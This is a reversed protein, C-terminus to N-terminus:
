FEYGATLKTKTDTNEKDEPVDSLHEVEYSLKLYLNDMLDTKLASVANTIVAESGASSELTQTFNITDNIDWDLEGGLRALASNEDEGNEIDSQRAGLAAEGSLELDDEKIFYRGYGVLESMRYNYGSFRDNVYDLEGFVYDIDTLSYRLQDNARYEEEIRTDDEKSNEASAEFINTWNGFNNELKTSLDVSEEETNGTQYVIGAEVEGKFSKKPEGASPALNALQAAQQAAAREAAQIAESVVLTQQKQTFSDIEAEQEPYYVKAVTVVSDFVFKDDASIAKKISEQLALPLSSEISSNSNSVDAQALVNQTSTFAFSAILFLRFFYAKM